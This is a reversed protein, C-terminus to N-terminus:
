TSATCAGSASAIFRCRWAPSRGWSGSSWEEDAAPHVRELEALLAGLDDPNSEPRWFGGEVVELEIELESALVQNARAVAEGFRRQWNVVQTAHEPTVFTTLRLRRVNEKRPPLRPKEANGAGLQAGSYHQAANKQATKADGWRSDYLCGAASAALLASAALTAVRTHM